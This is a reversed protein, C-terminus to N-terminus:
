RFEKMLRSVFLWVVALPVVPWAALVLCHRWTPGLNVGVTQVLAELLIAGLAWLLLALTVFAIVM